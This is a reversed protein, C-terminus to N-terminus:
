GEGGMDLRFPHDPDNHSNLDDRRQARDKISQDIIRQIADEVVAIYEKKIKHKQYATLKGYNRFDGWEYNIKFPKDKM